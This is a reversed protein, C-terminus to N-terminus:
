NDNKEDEFKIGLFIYQAQILIHKMVSYERKERKKSIDSIVLMVLLLPYLAINIMNLLVSRKPDQIKAITGMMFCCLLVFFLKDLISM